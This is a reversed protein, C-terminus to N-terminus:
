AARQRYFRQWVMLPVAILVFLMLASWVFLDGQRQQILAIAILCPLALLPAIKTAWWLAIGSAGDFRTASERRLLVATAMAKIGILFIAVWSLLDTPSSFGFSMRGGCAAGAGM